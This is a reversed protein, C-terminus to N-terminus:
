KSHPREYIPFESLPLSLHGLFEDLKLFSRHFVSMMVVADKKDPPIPRFFLYDYMM